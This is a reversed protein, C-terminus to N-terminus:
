SALPIGLHFIPGTPFEAAGEITQLSVGIANQEETEEWRIRVLVDEEKDREVPPALCDVTKNWTEIL